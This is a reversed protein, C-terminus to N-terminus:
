SNIGMFNNKYLLKFWINKEAPTIVSSMKKARINLKPNYNIRGFLSISDSNFIKKM